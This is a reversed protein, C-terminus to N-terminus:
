LHLSLTVMFLPLLIEQCSKALIWIGNLIIRAISQFIPPGRAFTWNLERQYEPDAVFAVSFFKCLTGAGHYVIGFYHLVKDYISPKTPARTSGLLDVISKAHRLNPHAKQSEDGSVWSCARSLSLAGTFAAYDCRAVHTKFELGASIELKDTIFSVQNEALTGPIGLCRNILYQRIDSPMHEWDLDCDFGLCLDQLLQKRMHGILASTTGAKSSARLRRDLISSAPLNNSSGDHSAWLNQALIADRSSFGLFLEATVQIL